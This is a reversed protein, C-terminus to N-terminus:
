AMPPFQQSFNTSGTKHYMDYMQLALIDFNVSQLTYMLSEVEILNLYFVSPEKNFTFRIGEVRKDEDVVSPIIEVFFTSSAQFIRRKEEALKPNIDLRDNTYVFMEQIKIAECVLKLEHIFIPLTFKSLSLTDNPNWVKPAELSDIPRTHIIQLDLTPYLTLSISDRSDDSHRYENRHDVSIRMSINLKWPINLVRYRIYQRQTM